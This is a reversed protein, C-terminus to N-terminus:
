ERFPLKESWKKKPHESEQKEKEQKRHERLYSPTVKFLHLPGVNLM